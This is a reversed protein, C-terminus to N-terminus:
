QAGPEHRSRDAREAVAILGTDNQTGPGDVLIEKDFRECIELYQQYLSEDEFVHESIKEQCLGHLSGLGGARLVAMGAQELIKKLEAPVFAKLVRYPLEKTLIANEAFQDRHWQGKGLMEQVSPLFRGASALSAALWLSTGWAKHAVTIILKKKAVRASEFIAREAHSGCRSVPGDMNLVLDFSKDRFASMELVNGEVLRITQLGEAKTHTIKLMAPSLDLHTVFFGRRALPISFAGTGGGIDLITEVGGLHREIERWRLDRNVSRSELWKEEQHASADWYAREAEFDEVPIRHLNNCANPLTSSMVPLGNYCLV